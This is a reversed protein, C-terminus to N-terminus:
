EAMDLEKLGWQSYGALEETWPIRWAVITLYMAMEAKLPNGLGSGPIFAPDRSL